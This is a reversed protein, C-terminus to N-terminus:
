DYEQRPRYYEDEYDDYDGGDDDSDDPPARRSQFQPYSLRPNDGATIYDMVRQLTRGAWWLRRGAENFNSPPPGNEEYRAFARERRNIFFADWTPRYNPNWRSDM